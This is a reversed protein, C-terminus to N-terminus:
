TSANTTHTAKAFCSDCVRSRRANEVGRFTYDVRHQSCKSCFIMGCIRCHHRRRYTTFQRECQPCHSVDEDPVWKDAKEANMLDRDVRSDTIKQALSGAGVGGAGGVGAGIVAGCVMGVPGFPIGVGTGVAAGIGLGAMGGKLRFGKCHERYAGSLEIAADEIEHSAKQATAEAKDVQHRQEAICSNFDQTIESLEEIDDLIEQMDTNTERVIKEAWESNAEVSTLQFDSPLEKLNVVDDDQPTHQENEPLFDLNLEATATQNKNTPSAWGSIRAGQSM